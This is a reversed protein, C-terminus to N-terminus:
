SGSEAGLQDTLWQMERAIGQALDDSRLEDPLVNWAYTEVELHNCMNERTIHQLCRRTQDITTELHGFTEVFLPVHFHTRWEGRPPQHLAHPLDDYFVPAADRSLKVLTQHLYRKEDFRGLQALARQRQDDNAMDDFRVRVANSVQVKGVAIGQEHYRRMVDLQDEFMVATHCIDHCVRLYRRIRKEPHRPLLHNNFFAIVDQCVDLYCGPEPELDIHILRGTQQEVRELHEALQALHDAAREIAAPDNAVNNRWAIPLTSIAGEQQEDNLLQVLINVLDITYQLRAPDNWQPQYVAHKVVDQHFDGFPFGNLTFAVLGHERLWAALEGAREQRVVQRATKASLWLGVGMPADPSVLQKVKLTYRKLNALMRSYDAGAHVNTCYAIM